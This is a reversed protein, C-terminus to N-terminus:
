RVDSGDEDLAVRLLLRATERAREVPAGHGDALSAALSADYMLQLKESLATTETVGARAAVTAFLTDRVFRRYEDIAVRGPHDPECLEAAANSFPCGRFNRAAVFAALVDFIADLQEEPPDGTRDELLRTWEDRYLDGRGKLYTAVLEDKSAFHLYLSTKAVGAQRVIENVGVTHIGREYFLQDAAALVRERAGAPPAEAIASM